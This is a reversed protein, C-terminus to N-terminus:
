FLMFINKVSAFAIEAGLFWVKLYIAITVFLSEGGLGFIFRGFIM